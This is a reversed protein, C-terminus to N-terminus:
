GSLVLEEYIRTLIKVYQSFPHDRLFSYCVALTSVRAQTADDEDCPRLLPWKSHLEWHREAHTPVYGTEAPVQPVKDGSTVVRTHVTHAVVVAALAANGLRPGGFTVLPPREINRVSKYALTLLTSVAAGLSHGTFVVRRNDTSQSKWADIKPFVDNKLSEAARGFGQHVKLATDVIAYGAEDPACAPLRLTKPAEELQRDRNAMWDKLTQSSRCAVILTSSRVHGLLITPSVDSRVHDVLDYCAGRDTHYLLKKAAKGPCDRGNFDVKRVLACGIAAHHVENGLQDNPVRADGPFFDCKFFREYCNDRAEEMLPDGASLTIVARALGMRYALVEDPSAEASAAAPGWVAADVKEALELLVEATVSLPPHWKARLDTLAQPERPIPEPAGAAEMTAADAAAGPAEVTGNGHAAM